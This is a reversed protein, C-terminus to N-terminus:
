RLWTIVAITLNITSHCLVPFLLSGSRIRAVALLAAAISTAVFPLMRFRIQEGELSLGHAMGFLLTVILAAAGFRLRGSMPDKDFSRELLALAIGRLALEEALSPMTAQYLLLEPDFAKPSEIFLGCICGYIFCATLCLLSIKLSGPAQRWRLGINQRLWPWSMVLVGALGLSLIKGEWNWRAGSFGIGLSSFLAPGNTTLLYDSLLYVAAILVLASSGGRRRGTHATEIGRTHPLIEVATPAPNGM